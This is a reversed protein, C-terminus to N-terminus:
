KYNMCVFITITTVYVRYKYSWLVFRLIVKTIASQMSIKAADCDISAECQYITTTGQEDKTITIEEVDPGSCDLSNYYITRKLSTRDCEYQFSFSNFPERNTASSYCYGNPIYPRLNLINIDVRSSAKGAVNLLYEEHTTTFSSEGTNTPAKTPSDTPSRTPAATPANSPPNATHYILDIVYNCNLTRSSTFSVFIALILGSLKAMM